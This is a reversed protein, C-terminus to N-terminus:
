WSGLNTQASCPIQLYISGLYKQVRVNVTYSGSVPRLVHVDLDVTESGPVMIPDSSLHVHDFSFIKNATASALVLELYM